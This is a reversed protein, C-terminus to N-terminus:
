RKAFRHIPGTTEKGNKGILNEGSRAYEKHRGSLRCAIPMNYVPSAPEWQHLFWLREQAFSLAHPGPAYHYVGRRLGDVALAVVYLEISHRAGGSPSTKIAVKKNNTAILWSQVGGTLGLLTSLARLPVPRAAFRRWTRRAGVVSGHVLVVRPGSGARLVELPAVSVM